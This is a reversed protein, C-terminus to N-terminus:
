TVRHFLPFHQMSPIRQVLSGRMALAFVGQLCFCLALTRYSLVCVWCFLVLSIINQYWVFSWAFNTQESASTGICMYIIGGNQNTGHKYIFWVNIRKNKFLILFFFLFHKYFYDIIIHLTNIYTKWHFKIWFLKIKWASTKDLFLM